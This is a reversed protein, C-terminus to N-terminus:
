AVFERLGQHARASKSALALIRGSVLPALHLRCIRSHRIPVRGVEALRTVTLRRSALALCSTGPGLRGPGLALPTGRHDRQDREGSPIASRPVQLCRCWRRATLPLLSPLPSLSETIQPRLAPPRCTQQRCEASDARRRGALEDRRVM